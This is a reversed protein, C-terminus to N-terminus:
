YVIMMKLMLVWWWAAAIPLSACTFFVFFRATWLGVLNYERAGYAQSALTDLASSFGWVISLGTINTWM